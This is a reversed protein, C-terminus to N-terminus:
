IFHSQNTSVLDKHESIHRRATQYINITTESSRLAGITPYRRVCKARFYHTEGFRRKVEVSTNMM